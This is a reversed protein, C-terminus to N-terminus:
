PQPNTVRGLFLISGSRQDRILFLFPHDARFIAPPEEEGPMAAEPGEIATAAAAETGREDVDVFAKHIVLSIFLDKKGTMGSFDASAPDFAQRMGMKPLVDNLTFTSEVRFKPLYVKVERWDMKQVWGELQEATLSTELEALGDVQRPLFVIMSLDGGKYPLRLAQVSNTELYQFRDQQYMTPVSVEQQPTVKFAADKTAEEEFPDIWRGRFYIANALILRTLETIARPPILDRIKGQTQMEVWQNIIARSKEGATAFDLERLEAGYNAKVMGKYEDKFAYGRQTWLGNAISLQYDQPEEGKAQKLLLAFAPHLRPGPFPLRLAAAMEEATQGSAGGYTMALATSISFPSLFLNGERRALQGYLALAFQNGGKVVAAVDGKDDTM